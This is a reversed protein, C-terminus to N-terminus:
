KDSGGPLRGDNTKATSASLLPVGAMPGPHPYRLVPPPHLHHPHSPLFAKGGLYLPSNIGVAPQKQLKGLSKPAGKDVVLNLTQNLMVLEVSHFQGDNVTEVSPLLFPTLILPNAKHKRYGPGPSHVHGANSSPWGHLVLPEHNDNNTQMGKWHKVSTLLSWGGVVKEIKARSCAVPVM